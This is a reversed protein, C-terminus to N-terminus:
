RDVTILVHLDFLGDGRLTSKTMTNIITDSLLYFLTYSETTKWVDDGGTSVGHRHTTVELEETGESELM